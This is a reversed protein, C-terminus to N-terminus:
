GGECNSSLHQTYKRQQEGLKWTKVFGEECATYLMLNDNDLAEATATASATGDVAYNGSGGAGGGGLSELDTDFGGNTSSESTGM